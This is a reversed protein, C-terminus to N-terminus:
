RMYFTGNETVDPKFQIDFLRATKRGKGGKRAEVVHINGTNELMVAIDIVRSTDIVGRFMKAIEYAAIGNKGARRVYELVREDPPLNQEINKIRAVPKSFPKESKRLDAQSEAVIPMLEPMFLWLAERIAGSTVDPHRNTFRRVRRMIQDAEVIRAQDNAFTEASWRQPRDLVLRRLRLFSPVLAGLLEAIESGVPDAVNRKVKAPRGRGPAMSIPFVRIHGGRESKWILRKRHLYRVLEPVEAPHCRLAEGFETMSLGDVPIEVGAVAAIM